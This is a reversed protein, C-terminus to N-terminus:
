LWGKTSQRSAQQGDQIMSTAAHAHAPHQVLRVGDHPHRLQLLQHQTVLPLVGVAVEGAEEEQRPVGPADWCADLGHDEAADAGRETGQGVDDAGPFVVEGLLVEVVNLSGDAVALYPEAGDYEVYHL